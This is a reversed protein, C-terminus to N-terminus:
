PLHITSSSHGDAGAVTWTGTPKRETIEAVCGRCYTRQAIVVAFGKKIHSPPVVTRCLNCTVRGSSGEFCSLLRRFWFQISM